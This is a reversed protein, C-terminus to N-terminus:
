CFHTKKSAEDGHLMRMAEVNGVCILQHRARTLAVNIRRKDTLFGTSKSGKVFSVIVTDAECGQTSDVTGVSVNKFGDKQLLSRLLSAQEKYFTIVRVSNPSEWLAQHFRDRMRRFLHLIAEAEQRNCSSKTFVSPVAEGQVQVFTYSRGDFLCPTRSGYHVNTVNSGNKLMGDYFACAPFFSIAAKMRYQTDLLIHERCGLRGIQREHFSESLGIHNAMPSKVVSPLQKPDGVVLLKKPKLHFPIYLAPETCAAAEDVILCDVKDTYLAASSRSAYLTSFIIDASNMLSSRVAQPDLQQLQMIVNYVENNLSHSNTTETGDLAHFVSDIAKGLSPPLKGLSSRLRRRLVDARQKMEGPRTDDDSGGKLSTYEEVVAQMWSHLHISKMNLPFPNDGSVAGLKGENGLAIINLCHSSGPKLCQLFRQAIHSIAKNTPACM